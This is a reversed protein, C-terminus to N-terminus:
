DNWENRDANHAIEGLGDSNGSSGAVVVIKGDKDIEVRAVDIGAKRVAKVARSM